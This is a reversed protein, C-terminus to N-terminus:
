AFMVPLSIFRNSNINRSSRRVRKFKAILDFRFYDGNLIAEEYISHTICTPYITVDKGGLCTIKSLDNTRSWECVIKNGDVRQSKRFTDNGLQDIKNYCVDKRISKFNITYKHINGYSIECKGDFSWTPSHESECLPMFDKDFIRSLPFPWEGNQSSIDEIYDLVYFNSSVYNFLELSVAERQFAVGPLEQTFLNSPFFSTALEKFALNRYFIMKVIQFQDKDNLYRLSLLSGEEYRRTYYM